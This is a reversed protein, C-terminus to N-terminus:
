GCISAAAQTVAKDWAQYGAANLHVGDITHPSPMAPLDVFSAGNRRALEPLLLNYRKITASAENQMEVTMRGQAEVAPVEMVALRPASKSLETLLMGYRDAFEPPSRSALADNTGLSVVILAPVKGELAPALWGGLDSATSAGNLGGNVVPHGCVSRPLTSAEVLSDGLVIVPDDVRRLTYYVILQRAKRHGEAGDPKATWALGATFACVAVIILTFSKWSVQAEFRTPDGGARSWLISEL